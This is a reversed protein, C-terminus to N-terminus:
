QKRNLTVRNDVNGGKAQFLFICSFALMELLKQIFHGIQLIQTQLVHMSELTFNLIIARFFNRSRYVPHVFEPRGATWV